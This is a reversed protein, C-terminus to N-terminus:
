KGSLENAIQTEMDSQSPAADVPIVTESRESGEINPAVTPDPM